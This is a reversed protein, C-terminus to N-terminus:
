HDYTLEFGGMKHYLDEIWSAVPRFGACLCGTVDNNGKMYMCLGQETLVTLHNIRQHGCYCKLNSRLSKAM